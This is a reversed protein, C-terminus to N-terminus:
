DLWIAINDITMLIFIIFHYVIYLTYIKQQDQHQQKHQCSVSHTIQPKSVFIRSIDQDQDQDQFLFDQRPRPRSLLTVNSRFVSGVHANCWGILERAV